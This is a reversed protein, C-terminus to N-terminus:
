PSRDRASAWASVRNGMSVPLGNISVQQAGRSREPHVPQEPLGGSYGDGTSTGLVTCTTGSLSEGSPCSYTTSSAAPVTSAPVNCTTGSLTGGSPCSYSTSYNATQTAAYSSSTTTICNTGSLTGFLLLVCRPRSGAVRYYTQGNQQYPQLCEGAGGGYYEGSIQGSPCSGWTSNAATTTTTSKYCTTGSLSGGSPCSYSYSSVYTSSSATYSSASDLLQDREALGQHVLVDHDGDCRTHHSGCM